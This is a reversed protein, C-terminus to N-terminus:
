DNELELFDIGYVNKFDCDDLYIFHTMKIYGTPSSDFDLKHFHSIYNDKFFGDPIKDLRYEYYDDFIKKGKYRLEYFEPMEMKDLSIDNLGIIEKDKRIHVFWYHGLYKRSYFTDNIVSKGAYIEELENIFEKAFKSKKNKFLEKAKYELTEITENTLDIKTIIGDRM